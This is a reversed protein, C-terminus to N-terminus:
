GFVKPVGADIRQQRGARRTSPPCFANDPCIFAEWDCRRIIWRPKKTGLSINKAPLQGSRCLAQVRQIPWDAIQAIEGPTLIETM